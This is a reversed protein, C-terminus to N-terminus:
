ASARGGSTQLHKPLMDKPYRPVQQAVYPKLKFDTLDPAVLELQLSKDVVFRGGKGFYGEKNAGNGKYYGKKARKTTLPIRKRASKSLFKSMCRVAGATSDTASTPATTAASTSPPTIGIGGGAPSFASLPRGMCAYSRRQLSTSAAIALSSAMRSTMKVSPKHPAASRDSAISPRHSPFVRREPFESFHAFSTTKRVGFPRVAFLLLRGLDLPALPVCCMVLLPDM